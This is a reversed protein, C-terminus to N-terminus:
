QLTSDDTKGFSLNANFDSLHQKLARFKECTGDTWQNQVSMTEVFLDMTRFFDAEVIAAKLAPHVKRGSIDDFLERIEHIDPIRKEILEYRAFVDNIASKYEDIERNIDDSSNGDKNVFGPIVRQAFGDWYDLDVHNGLAFDVTKGSLSVRMRIGLNTTDDTKRIHLIFKIKHRIYM